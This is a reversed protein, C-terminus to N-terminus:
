SCAYRFPRKFAKNIPSLIHLTMSADVTQTGQLRWAQTLQFAGDNATIPLSTTATSQGDSQEWRYM